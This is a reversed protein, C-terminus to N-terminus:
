PVVTLAKGRTIGNATAKITVSTNAAVHGTNVTFTGTLSGGPITVSSVAPSAVSPNTSILSVTISGPAAPAELTITGSVNNGGVVSSASLTLAKVGIPRVTLTANQLVGNFATIQGTVASSVASTKIVFNATTHGAPIKVTAPVSAAPNQSALNVYADVVAPATLTLKGNANKSGVVTAPSVTLSQLAIPNLLVARYQSGNYGTGVIQGRDNIGGADELVWGSTPAILDNLNHMVGDSWLFAREDYLGPNGPSGNVSSAGVVQGCNNLGFATAIPYGPLTGLDSMVGESYLFAHSPGLATDAFGAIDGTQSIQNAIGFTGGPLTGLDQMGHASDWYMPHRQGAANTADGVMQGANNISVGFSETGGPLSGLNDSALLTGGGNHLFARWGGSTTFIGTIQGADNIGYAQGSAYGGTGLDQIGHVSDWLFAHNYSEDNPFASGVVQGANNMDVASTGPLGPLTGIDLLGHASDWFFSHFTTNDALRGYGCVQGQDNIRYASTIGGLSGLDIVTYGQGAAPRAATLAWVSCLAATLTLLSRRLSQFRM